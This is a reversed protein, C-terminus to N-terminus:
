IKTQKFPSAITEGKKNLNSFVQEIKYGLFNSFYHKQCRLQELSLLVM